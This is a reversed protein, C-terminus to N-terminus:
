RTLLTNIMKRILMDADAEPINKFYDKKLAELAESVNKNLDM